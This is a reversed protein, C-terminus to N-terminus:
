LSTVTEKYTLINLLLNISLLSTDVPDCLILSLIYFYIYKQKADQCNESVASSYFKIKNGSVWHFTDRTGSHNDSKLNQHTSPDLKEFVVSSDSLNQM